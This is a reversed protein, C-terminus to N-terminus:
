DIQNLRMQHRGGDFPTKLFLDVMELAMGAGIVRGGMILINADNHQRSLRATFLNHCVGARVGKYRNAVIGMGLGTGCILIGREYEKGAVAQAVRHAIKPYDAPDMSFVGADSVVWGSVQELHLRCAEKLEFGGHDSGIIIKM